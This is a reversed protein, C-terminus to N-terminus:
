HPEVKGTRPSWDASFLGWIWVAVAAIVAYFAHFSYAFALISAALILLQILGTRWKGLVLSGLGPCIFNLFLAITRM